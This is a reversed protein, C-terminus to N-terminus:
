VIINTDNLTRRKTEKKTEKENEQVSFSSLYSGRFPANQRFHTRLAMKALIGRKTTRSTRRTRGIDPVGCWVKIGDNGKDKGPGEM